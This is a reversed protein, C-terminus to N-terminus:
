EAAAVARPVLPTDAAIRPAPRLDMRSSHFADTVGALQPTAEIDAETQPVAELTGRPKPSRWDEPATSDARSTGLAAASQRLGLRQRASRPAKWSGHIMDDTIM